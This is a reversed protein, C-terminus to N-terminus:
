IRDALKRAVAIEVDLWCFADIPDRFVQISDPGGDRLIQYMRSMGFSVDSPAIVALRGGGIESSRDGWFQALQRVGRNTVTSDEAIARLDMVEDFARLRDPDDLRREAYALVDADTIRGEVAAMVLGLEEEVRYRIGMGRNDVVQAQGV